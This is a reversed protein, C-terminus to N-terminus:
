KITPLELRGEGSRSVLSQMLANWGSTPDAAASAIQIVEDFAAVYDM